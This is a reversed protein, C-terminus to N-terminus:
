GTNGPNSSGALNLKSIDGCLSLEESINKKANPVSSVPDVKEPNPKVNAPVLTKVKVVPVILEEVTGTKCFKPNEDFVNPAL